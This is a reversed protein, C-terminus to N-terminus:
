FFFFFSLQSKLIFVLGSLFTVLNFWVISVSFWFWTEEFWDFLLNRWPGKWKYDINLSRLIFTLFSERRDLIKIHNFEGKFFLFFFGCCLGNTRHYYGLNFHFSLRKPQRKLILFGGVLIVVLLTMFSWVPEQNSRNSLNALRWSDGLNDCSIVAKRAVLGSRDM